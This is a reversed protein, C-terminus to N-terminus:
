MSDGPDGARCGPELWSLRVLIRAFAKCRRQTIGEITPAAADFRPVIQNRLTRRLRTRPRCRPPWVARNNDSPPGQRQGTPTNGHIEPNM